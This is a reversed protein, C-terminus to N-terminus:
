LFESLLSKCNFIIEDTKEFDRGDLIDHQYIHLYVIAKLIPDLSVAFNKNKKLKYRLKLIVHFHRSQLLTNM